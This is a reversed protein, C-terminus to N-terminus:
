STRRGVIAHYILLVIAAGMLAALFSYLNVGNGSGDAFLSFIWGGVIAGLVGLVISLFFDDSTCEYLRSAVFGVLLGVGLWGFVSM